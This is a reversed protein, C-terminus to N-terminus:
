FKYRRMPAHRVCVHVCVRKWRMEEPTECGPYCPSTAAGVQGHHFCRSLWIDQQSSQHSCGMQLDVALQASELCRMHYVDTRTHIHTRLNKTHTDVSHNMFVSMSMCRSTHSANLHLTIVHALYWLFQHAIISFPLSSALWVCPCMIYTCIRHMCLVYVWKIFLCLYVM